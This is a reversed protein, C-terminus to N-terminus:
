LRDERYFRRMRNAWARPARRTTISGLRLLKALLASMHSGTRGPVSPAKANARIFTIMAIFQSHCPTQTLTSPLIQPAGFYAVPKLGLITEDIHPMSSDAMVPSAFIIDFCAGTVTSKKCRHRLIRGATRLRAPRDIRQHRQKPAHVNIPAKDDIFIGM